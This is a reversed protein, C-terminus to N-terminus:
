PLLGAGSSAACVHVQAVRGDPSRYGAAVAARIGDVADQPALAIVCGGFGGGTM